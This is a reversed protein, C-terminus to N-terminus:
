EWKRCQQLAEAYRYFSSKSSDVPTKLSLSSAQENEGQERRLNGLLPYCDLRHKGQSNIKQSM